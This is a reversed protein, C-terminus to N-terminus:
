KLRKRTLTQVNDVLYRPYAVRKNFFIAYIKIASNSYVHISDVFTATVYTNLLKKVNQCNIVNIM